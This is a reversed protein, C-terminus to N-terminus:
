TSKHAIVGIIHPYIDGWWGTSYFLYFWCHKSENTKKAQCYGLWTAEVPGQCVNLHNYQPAGSVPSLPPLLTPNCFFINIAFGHASISPEFKISPHPGFHTQKVCKFGAFVNWEYRKKENMIQMIKIDEMINLYIIKSFFEFENEFHKM